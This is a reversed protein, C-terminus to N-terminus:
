ILILMLLSSIKHFHDIKIGEKRDDITWGSNINEIVVKSGGENAINDCIVNAFQM